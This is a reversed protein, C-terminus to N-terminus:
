DETNKKLKEIYEVVKASCENCMDITQKQIDSENFKDPIRYLLTKKRNVEIREFLSMGQALDIEKKCIDCIIKNIKSM